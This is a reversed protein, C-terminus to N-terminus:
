CLGDDFEDISDSFEDGYIDYLFFDVPRVIEVYNKNEELMESSIKSNMKSLNLTLKKQRLKFIQVLAQFFKDDIDVSCNTLNLTELNQALDVFHIVGSTFSNLSQCKSIHFDRLQPLNKALETLFRNHVSPMSCLKLSTLRKCKIIADILNDNLLGDSLHLVEIKDKAALEEVFSSISYMSCNLQLERLHELKSLQALNKNFNQFFDVEIILSELGPLNNAIVTFIEDFICGGCHVLKVAKLQPNMKFFTYLHRTQIDSNMVLSISELRPFHVALCSGNLNSDSQITLKRLQDCHVFVRRINDNLECLSLSLEELNSFFANGIRYLNEKVFFGTLCLEKLTLCNRVMLDLVRSRNEVKFSMSGIKLKQIQPGFNVFLNRIQLLTLADTGVNSYGPLTTDTLNIATHNKRFLNRAIQRLRVCTQDMSSLDICNLYSLIDYLCDDNLDLMHMIRNEAVDSESEISSDNQTAADDDHSGPQHWSDAVAVRMRYRHVYHDNCRLAAAASYVSKFQIFGYCYNLKYHMTLSDIPGFM